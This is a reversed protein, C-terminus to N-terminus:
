VTNGYCTVHFPTLLINQLQDPFSALAFKKFEDVVSEVIFGLYDCHSRLLPRVAVPGTPPAKAGM